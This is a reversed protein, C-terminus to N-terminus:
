RGSTMLVKLKNYARRFLSTDSRYALSLYDRHRQFAREYIEGMIYDYRAAAISNKKPRKCVALICQADSPAPTALPGIGPFTKHTDPNQYFYTVDQFFQLALENLLDFDFDIFHHDTLGWANPVSLIAQGRTPELLRAIEMFHSKPCLTHEVTEFSVITDFVDAAFPTAEVYGKRFVVNDNGYTRTAYSIAAADLDLGQVRAAVQGLIASGYGTGCAGDLVNRSQCYQRAFEYRALHFRRRAEPYLDSNADMRLNMNQLLWEKNKAGIEENVNMPWEEYKM